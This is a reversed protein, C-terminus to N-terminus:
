PARRARPPPPGGAGARAGASGPLLRSAPRRRKGGAAGGRRGRWEPERATVRRPNVGASRSKGEKARAEGARAKPGMKRKGKAATTVVKRLVRRMSANVGRPQVIGFALSGDVRNM